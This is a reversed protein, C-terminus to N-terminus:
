GPSIQSKPSTSPMGSWPPPHPQLGKPLLFGVRLQRRAEEMEPMADDIKKHLAERCELREKSIRACAHDPRRTQDREGSGSLTIPITPQGWSVLPGVKGIVNSEQLPRPLMFPLMPVDSPRLRVIQSGQPKHM